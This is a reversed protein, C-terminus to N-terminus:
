ARFVKLRKLLEVGFFGFSAILTIVVWNQMSLSTTKFVEQLVPLHVVAIQAVVGIVVSILLWKNNVLQKLKVPQPSRISFLLFFEFLVSASFSMTRAKILPFNAIKLWYVFFGYTLLYGCVAVILAFHLIGQFIEQKPKYPKQDIISPDPPDATLALAPFSDSMLNIWLIHLPLLSLPLGLIISSLVQLIEDFNSSTLYKLFKKINAFIHRGEQIALSISAFNNDLLIMDSVGKTLDTGDGVGIGVDAQKVAPADNVGDGTMAVQHGFSQLQELIQVKHRPSVRAFINTEKVVKVFYAQDMQDLEQGTYAGMSDLGIQKAIAAATKKHDGTIMIVRIGARHCTQLASKVEQRPPDYMAALGQFQLQQSSDATELNLSQAASTSISQSALALVRLGQQSFYDTIKQIQKAQTASLQCMDLIAETAGKAIILHSVQDDEAEAAQNSQSVLVQMYKDSSNFPVEDQRTFSSQLQKQKIGLKRALVILAQETPDGVELTADSCLAFNQVLTKVSNQPQTQSASDAVQEAAAQVSFRQNLESKPEVEGKLQLGQGSIQYFGSNVDYLQTVTMQNHTLTGTKDTCIVDTGGLSEATSLKRVLVNVKTMKKIGMALAITVVVPLGEPIASVSLSVTLMMMEVLDRGKAIGIVLGPIAVLLSVIALIKGLHALAQQLPTQREEAQQLRGAIEGIETKMGTRVVLAQAKGRTIVCGSYVMNHRDALATNEPLLEVKKGAPVSEGTLMSEDVQLHRASLLRADAPIKDGEQLLIIDGPVLHKAPIQQQKDQRIVIADLTEIHQLAELSKEAKFEQVFGLVGNILLILAIAIADVSEGILFSFLGAILLIVTLLDKFQDFILGLITFNQQHELQNLGFQALRAQAQEQSLGTPQSSLLQFLQQPRKFYPKIHLNTINKPEAQSM